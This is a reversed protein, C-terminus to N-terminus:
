ETKPPLPDNVRYRPKHEALEKPTFAPDIPNYDLDNVQKEENDKKM